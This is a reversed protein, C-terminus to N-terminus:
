EVFGWRQGLLKKTGLGEIGAPLCHFLADPKPFSKSLPSTDLVQFHIGLQIIAGPIQSHNAECGGGKVSDIGNGPIQPTFPPFVDFTWMPEAETFSDWYPARLSGPYNKQEQPFGGGNEGTGGAVLNVIKWFHFIGL